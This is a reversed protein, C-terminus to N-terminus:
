TKTTSPEAYKLRGPGRTISPISISASIKSGSPKTSVEGGPLQVGSLQDLAPGSADGRPWSGINALQQAEGMHRNATALEDM